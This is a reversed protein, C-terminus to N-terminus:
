FVQEETTQQEAMSNYIKMGINFATPYVIKRNKAYRM